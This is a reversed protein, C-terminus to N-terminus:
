IGSRTASRTAIATSMTRPAVRWTATAIRARSASWATSTSMALSDAAILVIVTPKEVVISATLMNVSIEFSDWCVLKGCEVTNLKNVKICTFLTTFLLTIPVLILRISFLSQAWKRIRGTTNMTRNKLLSKLYSGGIMWMSVQPGNWNIQYWIM